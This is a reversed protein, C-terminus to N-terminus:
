LIHSHSFVLHLESENGPMQNTRRALTRGGSSDTGQQREVKILYSSILSVKISELLNGTFNSRAIIVLNHIRLNGECPLNSPTDGPCEDQPLRSCSQSYKKNLSRGTLCHVQQVDTAVYIVTPECELALVRCVNSSALGVGNTRADSRPKRVMVPLYLCTGTEITLMPIPAGFMSKKTRSTRSHKDPSMTTM